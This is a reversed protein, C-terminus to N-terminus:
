IIISGDSVNSSATILASRSLFSYGSINSSSYKSLFLRSLSMVLFRVRIVSPRQQQWKVLLRASLHIWIKSITVNGIVGTLPAKATSDNM